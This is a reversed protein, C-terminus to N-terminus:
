KNERWFKDDFCDIAIYTYATVQIFVKTKYSKIKLIQVIFCDKGFLFTKSFIILSLWQNLHNGM